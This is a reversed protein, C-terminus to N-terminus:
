NVKPSFTRLSCKSWMHDSKQPFSNLHVTGACEYMRVYMHVYISYMCTCVNMWVIHLPIYMNLFMCVIRLASYCTASVHCTCVAHVYTCQVYM